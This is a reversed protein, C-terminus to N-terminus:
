EVISRVASRLEDLEFPKFLVPCQVSQFFNRYNENFTNGTAFVIRNILHPFYKDIYKYVAIGNVDPMDVDSIIIDYDRKQLMQFASPGNIAGDSEIGMRELVAHLLRLFGPEDEIILARKLVKKNTMEIKQNVFASLM